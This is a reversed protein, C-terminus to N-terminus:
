TQTHAHKHTQTCIVHSLWHHSPHMYMEQGRVFKGGVGGAGGGEWVCVRMCANACVCVPPLPLILPTRSPVAPPAPPHPVSM